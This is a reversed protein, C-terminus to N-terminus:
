ASLIWRANDSKVRVPSKSGDPHKPQNLWSFSDGLVLAIENVLPSSGCSGSRYILHPMISSDQFFFRTSFSLLKNRKSDQNMPVFQLDIRLINDNITKESPIQYHGNTRFPPNVLLGVKEVTRGPDPAYYIIERENTAKMLM